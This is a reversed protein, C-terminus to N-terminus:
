QPAVLVPGAAAGVGIGPSAEFGVRVKGECSVAHMDELCRDRDLNPFGRQYKLGGMYRMWVTSCAFAFGPEEGRRDGQQM